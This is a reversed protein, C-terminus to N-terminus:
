RKACQADSVVDVRNLDMRIPVARAKEADASRVDIRKLLVHRILPQVQINTVFCAQGNVLHMARSM